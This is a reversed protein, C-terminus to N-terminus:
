KSPEDVDGLFVEAAVFWAMASMVLFMGKMRPGPTVLRVLVGREGGGTDLLRLEGLIALQRIYAILKM